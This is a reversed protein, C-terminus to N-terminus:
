LDKKLTVETQSCMYSTKKPNNVMYYQFIIAIDRVAGVVWWDAVEATDLYIVSEWLWFCILVTSISSILALFNMFPEM